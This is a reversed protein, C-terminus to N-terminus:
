LNGDDDDNGDNINDGDDDGDGTMSEGESGKTCGDPPAQKPVPMRRLIARANERHLTLGIRQALEAPALSSDVGTRTAVAKALSQWVKKATAGWSM